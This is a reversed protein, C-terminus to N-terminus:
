FLYVEALSMEEELLDAVPDHFDDLGTVAVHAENDISQLVEEDGVVLEDRSGYRWELVFEDMVDEILGLVPYVVGIFDSGLDGYLVFHLPM